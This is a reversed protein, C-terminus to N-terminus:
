SPFKTSTGRWGPARPGRGSADPNVETDMAWEPWRNESVLHDGILHSQRQAYWRLVLILGCLSLVAVGGGFWVPTLVWWWSWTIVGTLKLVILTIMAAPFVTDQISEVRSQPTLRPRKMRIAPVRCAYRTFPFQVMASHEGADQGARRAPDAGYTGCARRSARGPGAGRLPAAQNM